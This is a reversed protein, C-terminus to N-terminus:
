SISIFWVRQKIRSADDSQSIANRSVNFKFTVSVSPTGPSKKCVFALNYKRYSVLICEANQIKFYTNNVDIKTAIIHMRARIRTCWFLYSLGSKCSCQEVISRSTRGTLNLYLGCGFVVSFSALQTKMEWKSKERQRWTVASWLIEECQFSFCISCLHCSPLM